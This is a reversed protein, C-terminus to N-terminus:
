PDVNITIIISRKRFGKLTSKILTLIGKVSRGKLLITYRYKDRLKPSVDPHPDFIDISKPSKSKLEDFLATSQAFVVDEDKGRLGLAVLHRYPPLDLEKRQKLEERYFKGFNMIRAAKICYNDSMSTQVLLKESAFQKLHILLSFAKEGSRFDFRTLQADFNLMAVLDATWKGHYRFIAQTTIIVDANKPFAKSDSDFRHIRASPYFRAVDSELKENGTGTSKLYSGRCEPCTRPLERTFNCHRCVMMKKSYLYSLNVNCRECKVIFGCQQCHTRTNFGRRNMFLVVKGGGELTRQMANQLPFSLISTKRPNYNTMDIVQMESSSKAEFTVTEWKKKKAEEWVEASPVSGVFLLDCGDIISRMAAVERVHYHPTQEQKYSDNSEEDIVILGLRALPAFVASRAGVVISGERGRVEEWQVLEKKASLKKDLVTIPCNLSKSLVALTEKIFFMDPVLVIVNKKQAVVAQIREIIFPWRKYRTQDHVLTVKGQRLDEEHPAIAPKTAGSKGRRLAPPLYAEIAEGLSCGYYQSFAKALELANEDLAPVDDLISLIPNLRKFASRQAFGVVFGICSRRNFLIRVRKGIAIDDQLGKSIAYDFPGDVPLGVVVKAIKPKMM